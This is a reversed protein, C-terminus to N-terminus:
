GSAVRAGCRVYVATGYRGAVEGDVWRLVMTRGDFDVIERDLQDGAPGDPGIYRRGDPGGKTRLESTERQDPLHMMIGGGPGRAIEYANRCHQRAQAATRTRDAERHFSAFGWRGVLDESAIGPAPPASATPPPAAPASPAGGWQPGTACAGLSLGVFASLIVHRSM